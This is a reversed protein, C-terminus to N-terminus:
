RFFGPVLSDYALEIEAKDPMGEEDLVQVLGGQGAENLRTLASEAQLRYDTADDQFHGFTDLELVESM